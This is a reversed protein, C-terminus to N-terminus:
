VFKQKLEYALAIGIKEADETKGNKVGIIYDQRNSNYYLGRLSLENDNVDAYAAIPSSCGGDLARVFGREALAQYRSKKSLICDFISYDEGARGQIALIGQGAAPIVEDTEFIRYAIGSMNLRELGAMALVTASYNEAELKKLRTQVNGRIGKFGANPYIKKLQEIRRRSSSGIIGSTNFERDNPDIIMADRPDERHTFGILPLDKNDEMPLDKLSHVTVDVRNDYLARDLEKVFLGKGGIQDLNRDLIKDGTTKMTVLEFEIDPHFRKVSDIVIRAQIVALKSERSGVRIVKKM